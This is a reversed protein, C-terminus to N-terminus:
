LNIVWGEKINHPGKILVSKNNEYIETWRNANKYKNAAIKTLTDGKKITYKIGLKGNTKAPAAPTNAKQQTQKAMAKKFAAAVQDIAQAKTKTQKNETVVRLLTISFPIRHATKLDPLFEEILVPASTKDTVLTVPKGATRMLGIKMMRDYADLGIFEGTWSIPRYTPGMNQFSVGGGPFERKAIMQKGGMQIFDPKEFVKLEVGGLTVRM